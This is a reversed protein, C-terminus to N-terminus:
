KEAAHKVDVVPDSSQIISCTSLAKFARDERIKM